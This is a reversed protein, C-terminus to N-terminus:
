KRTNKPWNRRNLKKKKLRQILESADRQIEKPFKQVAPVFPQSLAPTIPIPTIQRQHGDLGLYSQM